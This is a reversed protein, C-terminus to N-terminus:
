PSAAERTLWVVVPHEDGEREGAVVVDGSSLRAIHTASALPPDGVCLGRTLSFHGWGASGAVLLGIDDGELQAVHFFPALSGGLHAPHPWDSPPYVFLWSPRWPRPRSLAPGPMAASDVGANYVSGEGLDWFRDEARSAGQVFFGAWPCSKYRPQEWSTFPAISRWEKRAADCARVTGEREDTPGTLVRVSNPQLASQTVIGDEDERVLLLPGRYMGVLAGTGWQGIAAAVSGTGSLRIPSPHPPERVDWPPALHLITGDHTGEVVMLLSRPGLPALALVPATELLASARYRTCATSTDAGRAIMWDGLVEPLGSEIQTARGQLTLELVEEPFPLARGAFAKRLVLPGERLGLRAMSSPYLLLLMKVTTDTSEEQPKYQWTAVSPRDLVTASVVRDEDLLVSIVTPWRDPDYTVESQLVTVDLCALMMLPAILACGWAAFQSRGGGREARPADSAGM